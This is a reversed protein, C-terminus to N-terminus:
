GKAATRQMTAAPRGCKIRQIAAARRAAPRAPPPRKKRHNQKHGPAPPPDSLRRAIPDGRRARACCLARLCSM